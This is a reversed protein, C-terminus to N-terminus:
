KCSVVAYGNINSGSHVKINMNRRMDLHLHTTMLEMDTIRLNKPSQSFGMTIKLQM